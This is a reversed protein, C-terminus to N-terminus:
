LSELSFKNVNLIKINKIKFFTKLTKKKKQNTSNTEILLLLVLFVNETVGVPMGHYLPFWVEINHPSFFFELKM